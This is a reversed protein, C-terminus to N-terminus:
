VDPGSLISEVIQRQLVAKRDEFEHDVDKVSVSDQRQNLGKIRRLRLSNLRCCLPWLHKTRKSRRIMFIYGQDKEQQAYTHVKLIVNSCSRTRAYDDVLTAQRM